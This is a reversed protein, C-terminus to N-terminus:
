QRRSVVWREESAPCLCVGHESPAPPQCPSHSLLGLLRGVLGSSTSGIERLLRVFDMQTIRFSLASTSASELHHAEDVILYQYEPLVRSGTIIDALLLAHNVVLIHASQSAMHTKHFPCAGGTRSMCVEAKCGEDEASLRSWVERENPGNLNIEGRDGTGGQQLWVMVKSMVRLEDVTDPGNKRMGDLRRPCLYNARGQVVVARVESNLAKALDPIDKKILQDQLTITNTSIVVRMSNKLAWEVAPILYAFSKGTGTGAEVMIHKSQSLADSVARLMEIQQPRSEFSEFYHAFPGGHEIM